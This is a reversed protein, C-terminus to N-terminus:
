LRTEPTMANSFDGERLLIQNKSLATSAKGGKDLAIAKHYGVRSPEDQM